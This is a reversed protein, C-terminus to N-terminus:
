TLLPIRVVFQDGAEGAWVPCKTLLAYRNMINQLGVGTSMSPTSRPQLNNKIVLMKDEEVTVTLDLPESVSMRNHKVANEILLQLTLPPIKYKDLIQEPLDIHVNFKNEFRIRLLFTYSEIFTLETRLTVLPQDKQELIYRYSRSLQDIFKESLDPDVRVLSSLISLSNFLFHPNVQTKLLAIESVLQQKELQESKLKFQQSNRQYRLMRFLFILALLLIGIGLLLMLRIYNNKKTLEAQHALNIQRKEDERSLSDLLLDREFEIRKLEVAVNLKNLSDDLMYFEEFYELAKEANGTAKYARFLCNCAARQVPVKDTARAIVLSKDCWEKAGKFDMQNLAIEGLTYYTNTLSGSDRLAEFSKTSLLTYTKAQEYQGMKNYITGLNVYTIAMGMRDNLRTRIELSKNLYFLSKDWMKFDKYMTGINNYLLGLGQEDRKAEYIKISRNYYELAKLTDEQEQYIIAINSYNSTLGSTDNIKENIALSKLQYELNKVNDGKASYILGFNGYIAAEGKLDGIAKRIDLSQQYYNLSSVYDGKYYYATAITYLAKGAWLQQDRERAFKLQMNALLLVSDLNVNLMPWALRQIANLRNSDSAAANSWETWLSDRNM